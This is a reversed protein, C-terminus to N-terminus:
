IQRWKWLDDFIWCLIIFDKDQKKTKNQNIKNIQLYKFSTTVFFRLYIMTM